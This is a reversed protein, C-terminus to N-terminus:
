QLYIKEQLSVYGDTFRVRQSEQKRPFREYQCGRVVFNFWKNM